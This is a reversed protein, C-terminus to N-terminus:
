PAERHQPEPTWSASAGLTIRLGASATSYPHEPDVVLRLTVQPPGGVPRCRVAALRDLRHVTVARELLGLLVPDACRVKSVRGDTLEVSVPREHLSGGLRTPRNIRILGDAHFEGDAAGVPWHLHGGPLQQVRGPEAPGDEVRPPRGAAPRLVLEAGDGTGVRVASAAAATACLEALRAARVAPEEWDPLPLQVAALSAPLRLVAHDLLEACLFFVAERAPGQGGRLEALAGLVLRGTRVQSGADGAVMRVAVGGARATAALWAAETARGRDLAVVLRDGAALRLRDFLASRVALREAPDPALIQASPM